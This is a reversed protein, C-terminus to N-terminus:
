PAPTGESKKIADARQEILYRIRELVFADSDARKEVPRDSLIWSMLAEHIDSEQYLEDLALEKAKDETM